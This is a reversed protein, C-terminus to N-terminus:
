EESVRAGISLRRLSLPVAFNRLSAFHSALRVTSPPQVPRAPVHPELDFLSETQLLHVPLGFCVYRSVRPPNDAGVPPRRISCGSGGADPAAREGGAAAPCGAQPDRGRLPAQAGSAERLGDKEKRATSSSNASRERLSYPWPSSRFSSCGPPRSVFGEVVGAAATEVVWSFLGVTPEEHRPTQCRCCM